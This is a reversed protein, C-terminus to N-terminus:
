FLRRGKKRRLSFGILLCLAFTMIAMGTIYMIAEDGGTAPLVYAKNVNVITNISGLDWNETTGGPHTVTVTIKDYAVTVSYKDGNSLYGKPVSTEKLTYIHGSPINEFRVKGNSDPSAKFDSISVCTGDGRCVSCKSKDHSLTFVASPVLEGFSGKKLFEFESLYGEVAPIPFDITKVQSYKKVGDANVITQYKLYTPDNTNYVNREVFGSTENELRVRYVLEYYYTTISGASQLTFGSKKLDWNIVTETDSYAATNEGGNESQGILQPGVLAGNQNYFGIFDIVKYPDITAPMPDVTVWLSAMEQESYRKMEEFIKTYAQVLGTQNTSDYYYGSGISNKLWSKYAEASSASGIEYSASTRDVVSFNKRDTQDVYTQVKQGGIDIGISFIKMGQNRINSAMQRARIAAKDSYSTGYLCYKKTVSDYFVGNKGPTGSTCYPDYGNYDSKIYTTPFGDSLFIIYKYKNKSAALMDRGLKLGAEINTFREHSDSYGNSSIVKGTETRMKNKLQAAETANSCTQLDFIKKANTNFAVYGIKSVGVSEETFKDIFSEAAAMAAKYRTTNGFANNMTNSIDMVIVISADPDKYYTKIEEKTSVKLTIDFVNELETGAITKSVKVVGDDSSKEGGRNKVQVDSECAAAAKAAANSRVVSKTPSFTKKAAKQADIIRQWYDFYGSNQLQLVTSPDGPEGVIKDDDQQEVTIYFSSVSDAEFSISDSDATLSEIKKPESEEDSGVSYGMVKLESAEAGLKIGRVTIKVNGSEVDESDKQLSLYYGFDFSGTYNVASRFKELEASEFAKANLACKEDFKGMVSVSVSDGVNRSVSVEPYEYGSRCKETHEHEPVSCILNGSEDCCKETHAHESFGCVYEESASKETYCKVEDHQHEEKTCVLVKETKGSEFCSDDHSHRLVETKGCSLVGNEYCADTHEHFVIEDKGCILNEEKKICDDTHKHDEVEELTCVLAGAENLCESSHKHGVSEELGCAYSAPQEYCAETHEHESIEPLVCVLTGSKNYCKENHEHLVYDAFGCIVKQNEDFCSATHSHVEFKCNLKGANVKEEFCVDGHIHEEIGCNPTQTMTIAPLILAYTTCFVVICSLVILVKQWHKKKLREKLYERIQDSLSNQM